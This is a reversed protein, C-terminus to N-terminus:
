SEIWQVSGTFKESFKLTFTTIRTDYLGGLRLYRDLASVKGKKKM